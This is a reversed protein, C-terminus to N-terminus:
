IGLRPGKFYARAFLVRYSHRSCREIMKCVNEILFVVLRDLRCRVNNISATLCRKLSFSM